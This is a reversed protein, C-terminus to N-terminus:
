RPAKAEMCQVAREQQEDCLGPKIAAIGDEACEWNHAPQPVLCRYFAQFEANCPTETGARVCEVLCQDANKCKLVHSPECISRCAESVGPPLPERAASSPLAPSSAAPTPEAHNRKEACGALLVLTALVLATRLGDRIADLWSMRRHTANREPDCAPRHNISRLLRAADCEPRCFMSM